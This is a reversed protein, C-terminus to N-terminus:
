DDHHKNGAPPLYAPYSTYPAPPGGAAANAIQAHVIAELMREQPTRRLFFWWVFVAAAAAAVAYTGLNVTARRALDLCFGNACIAYQDFLARMFQTHESEALVVEAAKCTDTELLHATPYQAREDDTAVGKWLRCTPTNMRSAAEERALQVIHAAKVKALPVGFAQAAITMAVAFMFMALVAWGAVEVAAMRKPQRYGPGEESGDRDENPDRGNRYDYM